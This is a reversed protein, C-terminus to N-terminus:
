PPPEVLGAVLAEAHEHLGLAEMVVALPPGDCDVVSAAPLQLIQQRGGLLELHRRHVADVGPALHEAV